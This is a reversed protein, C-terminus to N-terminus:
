DSTLGQPHWMPALRWTRRGIAKHGLPACPSLGPCLSAGGQTQYAVFTALGSLASCASLDTGPV